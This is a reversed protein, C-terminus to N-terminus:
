GLILSELDQTVNPMIGNWTEFGPRAQHLLMGIGTVTQLNLTRAQTLLDTYLPTYVIDTVLTEKPANSLDIELPPKGDMGLATTNVILGANRCADNRDNWDIVTIKDPSFSRLNEAKECTRNTITISQVNENLLAYVIANAAGGAGLVLANQGTVSWKDQVNEKVNQIFGYADTNTGYLTGDKITVTNVAGIEKALPTIEACLDMIAIKHPVTVNFGTFGQDILNQVGEKLNEPAIDIATYEGSLGHENIWHNHILPSKSHKIPHGIVATKIFPVSM